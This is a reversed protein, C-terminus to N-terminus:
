LGEGEGPKVFEWRFQGHGGNRWQGIGMRSGYDLLDILSEWKIAKHEILEVEFTVRAPPNIAESSALAVRKGKPTDAILPREVTGDAEQRGPKFYIRRPQIFLFDNLKNRLNKIDEQEKLVNGANKFFGKIQYNFLFLGNPDKHFGTTPGSEPLTTLEDELDRSSTGNAKAMKKLVEAEKGLLYTSYVEPDTPSTGLIPENFDLRVLRRESRIM